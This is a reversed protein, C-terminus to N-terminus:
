VQHLMALSQLAELAVAAEAGLHSELVVCVLCVLDVEIAGVVDMDIKGFARKM